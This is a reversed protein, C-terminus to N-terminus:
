RSRGHIQLEIFIVAVLGATPLQRFLQRHKFPWFLDSLTKDGYDQHMRANSTSGLSKDAKATPEM